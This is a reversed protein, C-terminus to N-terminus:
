TPSIAASLPLDLGATVQGAADLVEIFLRGANSPVGPQYARHMRWETGNGGSSGHSSRYPTGADDRLRIDIEILRNGRPLPPELLGDVDRGIRGLRAWEDLAEQTERVHREGDATPLGVIHTDIHDSWLEVSTVVYTLQDIDALAAVPALVGLLTVTPSPATSRPPRVITRDRNRATELADDIRRQAGTFAAEDIVGCDRLAILQARLTNADGGYLVSDRSLASAFTTTLWREGDM